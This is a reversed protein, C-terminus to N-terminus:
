YKKFLILKRSKNMQLGIISNVISYVGLFYSAINKDEEMELSGFHGRYTQLKAEKIKGDGKYCIKLKNWPEKTSKCHMVKVFETNSLGSLISNKAM